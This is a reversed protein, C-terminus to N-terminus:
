QRLGSLLVGGGCGGNFAASGRLFSGGGAGGCGRAQELLAADEGLRFVVKRLQGAKITDSLNKYHTWHTLRNTGKNFLRDNELQSKVLADRMLDRFAESRNAYGQQNILKDFSKLLGKEVSIGFRSLESM